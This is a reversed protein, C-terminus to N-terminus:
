SIASRVNKPRIRNLNGKIGFKGFTLRTKCPKKSTDLKGVPIM